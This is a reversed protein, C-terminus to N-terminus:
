LTNTSVNYKKAEDDRPIQLRFYIIEPKSIHCGRTLRAGQHCPWQLPWHLAAALATCHLPMATALATPIEICDSDSHLVFEMLWIQLIEKTKNRCNGFETLWCWLTAKISSCWYSRLDKDTWIELTTQQAGGLAWRGPRRGASGPCIPTLSKAPLLLACYPWVPLDPFM